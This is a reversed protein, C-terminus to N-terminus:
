HVEFGEFSTWSKPSCGWNKKKLWPLSPLTFPGLMGQIENSAIECLDMVTAVGANELKNRVTPSLERFASLSLSM